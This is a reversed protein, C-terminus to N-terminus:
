HRAACSHFARNKATRHQEVYLSTETERDRARGREIGWPSGASFGLLDVGDEETAM